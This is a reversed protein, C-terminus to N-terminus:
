RGAPRRRLSRSGATREIAAVDALDKPRGVARKNIVFDKAGIVAVPMDEFTVRVRRKWADAFRVGTITTLIDIRVPPLGIQFIIGPVSLDAVTLERLPAGFARLAAHAREGNSPTADIWVDLDGTGRPRGHVALAYAGVVLFRVDHDVFARLLDRFDGVLGIKRGGM